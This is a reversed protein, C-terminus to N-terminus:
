LSAAPPTDDRELTVHAADSNGLSAVDTDIVGLKVLGPSYDFDRYFVAINGWPAYYSIDGARPTTGSPAGDLSLKRPLFAIKETSAHDELSLELPLLSAFDRATASDDLMAELSVDGLRIRIRM